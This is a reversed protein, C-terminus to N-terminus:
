FKNGCSICFDAQVHNGANCYHCIKMVEVGDPGAEPKSEKAMEENWTTKVNRKFTDFSDKQNRVIDEVQAERDEIEKRLADIKLYLPMNKADESGASYDEYKAMGLQMYLKKLESKKSVLETRYVAQDVSKQTQEAAEKATSKISEELKNLIDKM